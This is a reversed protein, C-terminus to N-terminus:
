GESLMYTMNTASNSWKRSIMSRTFMASTTPLNMRATSFFATVKRESHEALEFNAELNLAANTYIGKVEKHKLPVVKDVEPLPGFYEELMQDHEPTSPLKENLVFPTPTPTPTPSPEFVTTFITPKTISLEMQETTGNIVRSLFGGAVVIGLLIAFFALVIVIGQLARVTKTDKVRVRNDGNQNESM